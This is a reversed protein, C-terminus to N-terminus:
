LFLQNSLNFEGMVQNDDDNKIIKGKKIRYRNVPNVPDEKERLEKVIGRLRENEKRTLPPDDNKIFIKKLFNNENLGKFKVCGKFLKSKTDMDDVRIKASHRSYNEKADFNVLIKYQDNTIGPCVFNLVHHIIQAHDNTIDADVDGAGPIGTMDSKLTNPIGAIFINHKTEEKRTRELCKQHELLVKKISENETSLRKNEDAVAKIKLNITNSLDTELQRFKTDLEERIIGRLSAVTGDSDLHEDLLAQLQERKVKKRQTPNLKHYQEITNVVTAM